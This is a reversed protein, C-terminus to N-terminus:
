KASLDTNTVQKEYQSPELYFFSVEQSVAGESKSAM